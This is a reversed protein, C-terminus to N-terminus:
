ATRWTVETALLNTLYAAAKAPDPVARAKLVRIQGQWNRYTFTVFNM